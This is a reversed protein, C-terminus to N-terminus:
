TKELGFQSRENRGPGFMDVVGNRCTGAALIPKLYILGGCWQLATSAQQAAMRNQLIQTLILDQNGMGLIKSFHVAM